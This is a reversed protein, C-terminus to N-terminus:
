LPQCSTRWIDPKTAVFFFTSRHDIGPHQFYFNKATDEKVQDCLLKHIELIEQTSTVDQALTEETPIGQTEYGWPDKGTCVIKAFSRGFNIDTKHIDGETLWLKNIYQALKNLM